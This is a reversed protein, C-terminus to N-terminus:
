DSEGTKNKYGDSSYMYNYDDKLTTLNNYITVCLKGINFALFLCIAMDILHYLNSGLINEVNICPFTINHGLLSGLNWASCSGNINDSINTLLTIPMTILDSVPSNSEKQMNQNNLVGGVDNNDPSSEDKITNTQEQVAQTTQQQAATSDGCKYKEITWRNYLISRLGLTEFNYYFNSVFIDIESIKVSSKIKYELFGNKFEGFYAVGGSNQDIMRTAVSINQQTAQGGTYSSQMNITFTVPVKIIYYSYDNNMNITVYPSAFVNQISQGVIQNTANGSFATITDIDDLGCELAFVNTKLFMIALSILVGIIVRKIIYKLDRVM